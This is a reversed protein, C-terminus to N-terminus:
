DVVKKIRKCTGSTVIRFDHGSVEEQALGFNGNIKNIRIWEWISKNSEPDEYTRSYYLVLDDDTVKQMRSFKISDLCPQYDSKITEKDLLLNFSFVQCSKSPHQVTFNAVCSLTQAFASNLGMFIYILLINLIKNGTKM